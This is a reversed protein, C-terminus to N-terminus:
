ERVKALVVAFLDAEDAFWEDVAFGASELMRTASARTFKRSIETRVTEGRYFAIPEDIGDIRVTQDRTSVLHMEIQEDRPDYFAYHEFADVDFDAGLQVNIVRLVNRNFEATIGRADDYAPNLISPSKVLDVGLLFHDGERMGARVRELFRVASAPDFNGITGGLFIVLAPRPVDLQPLGGDFDAVVADVRLGDLERALSTASHVLIERSLDIPAYCELSGCARIATLLARTKTSSGSGFEILSAPRLRAALAPAIRELLAGETRTQYYEPLECILEFLQSGREDYFYKPPLEKREALLGRRVDALMAARTDVEGLLDVVSVRDVGQVVSM